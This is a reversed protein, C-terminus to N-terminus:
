LVALAVALRLLQVRRTALGPRLMRRSSGPSSRSNCPGLGIVRMAVNFRHHILNPFAGRREILPDAAVRAAFRVWCATALSWANTERMSDTLPGSGVASLM